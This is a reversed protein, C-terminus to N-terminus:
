CPNVAKIMEKLTQGPDASKMLTEGILAGSFGYKFLLRCDDGNKIGSESIVPLDRPLYEKIKLSTDVNVKFTQLNRNNIGIIINSKRLPIKDIDKVDALELLVELGLEVACDMYDDIQNKDLIRAILLIIDAGAARSEYIQLQDIIFEKRLIPLSIHKRVNKLHDLHGMFYKDDTLVSVASAGNENYMKAQRVPDFDPQIIGRSPSAKKIECIFHFPNEDTIRTILSHGTNEGTIQDKFDSISFIKKLRSVEQFKHEVIEDLINM